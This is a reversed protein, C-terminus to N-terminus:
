LTPTDRQSVTSQGSVASHQLEPVIRALMQIATQQDVMGQATLETVAEQQTLHTFAPPSYPKKSQLQLPQRVSSNLANGIDSRLREEEIFM